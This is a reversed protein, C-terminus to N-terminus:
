RACAGAGRTRTAGVERPLAIQCTRAGRGELAARVERPLAIQRAFGQKLFYGVANNDAYTLFHSLGDEDRAAQGPSNLSSPLSPPTPTPDGAM